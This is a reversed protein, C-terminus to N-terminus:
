QREADDDNMHGPVFDSEISRQERLEEFRDRSDPRTVHNM